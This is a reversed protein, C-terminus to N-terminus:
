CLTWSRVHLTLRVIAILVVNLLMFVKSCCEVAYFSKFPETGSRIVPANLNDLMCDDIGTPDLPQGDEDTHIIERM